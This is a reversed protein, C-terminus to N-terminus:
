VECVHICARVCARVRVCLCLNSTLIAKIDVTRARKGEQEQEQARNERKTREGDREM